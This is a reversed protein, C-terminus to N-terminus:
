LSRHLLLVASHYEIHLVIVHPPLRTRNGGSGENYRVSEPLSFLWQRLRSELDELLTRRPIDELYKVPYVRTM